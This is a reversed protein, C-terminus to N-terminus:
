TNRMGLDIGIAGDYIEEAMRAKKRNISTDLSHNNHLYNPTFQPACRFVFILDFKETPLGHALLGGHQYLGPDL